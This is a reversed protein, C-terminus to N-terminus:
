KWVGKIMDIENPDITGYIFSDGNIIFKSPQYDSLWNWFKLALNKKFENSDAHTNISFGSHTVFIEMEINSIPKDFLVWQDYSNNQIPSRLENENLNKFIAVESKNFIWGRAYEDETPKFSDGDFSIIALNLGLFFSGFDKIFDPFSHISNTFDIWYYNEYTGTIM